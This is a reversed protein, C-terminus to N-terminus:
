LMMAWKDAWTIKEVLAFAEFNLADEFFYINMGM